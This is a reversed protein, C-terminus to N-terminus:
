SKYGVRSCALWFEKGGQECWGLPGLDCEGCALLKLPPGLRDVSPVGRTFGINEFQMPSPTILWWQCTEGAPPLAPLKSSGGSPDFQVSEKEAWEGVGPLLILSGCGDRPCVLKYKNVNVGAKQSHPVTLQLAGEPFASLRQIAAKPDGSPRKLAEFLGPPMQQPSHVVTKRMEFWPRSGHVVASPGLWEFGAKEYLSRLNDHAILLIREYPKGQLTAAEIRSVYEKLLQLAIGKRRHDPSVCVSHICVSSSNPVHNSMSEHTLSEAPSLTSCIYGGLERGTPVDVYGALFLDGANKQRFRFGELSAAEDEPYGAREIDYAKEIDEESFGKARIKV